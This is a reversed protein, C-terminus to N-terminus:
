SFAPNCNQQCIRSPLLRCCGSLPQTTNKKVLVALDLLPCRIPECENVGVNRSNAAMLSAATLFDM